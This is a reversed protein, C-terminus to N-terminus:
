EFASQGEETEATVGAYFRALDEIRGKSGPTHQSIGQRINDNSQLANKEGRTLSRKRTSWLPVKIDNFCYRSTDDYKRRSSQNWGKDPTCEVNFMDFLQLDSFREEIKIKM